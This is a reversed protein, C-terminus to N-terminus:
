PTENPKISSMLPHTLLEHGVHVNNRAEIFVERANGGIYHVEHKDSMNEKVLPNNTVIKVNGKM